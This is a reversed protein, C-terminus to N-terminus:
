ALPRATCVSVVRVFHELCGHQKLFYLVGRCTQFCILCTCVFAKVLHQHELVKAAANRGNLDALFVEGFGGRGLLEDTVVVQDEPIEVQELKRQRRTRRAAALSESNAEDVSGQFRAHIM